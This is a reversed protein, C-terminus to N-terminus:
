LSLRSVVFPRMVAAALRTIPDNSVEPDSLAALLADLSMAEDRVRASRVIRIM